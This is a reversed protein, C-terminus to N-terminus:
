NCVLQNLSAEWTCCIWVRAITGVYLVSSHLVDGLAFKCLRLFVARLLERTCVCTTKEYPGSECVVGYIGSAIIAYDCRMAHPCTRYAFLMSNCLCLACLCLEVEVHWM